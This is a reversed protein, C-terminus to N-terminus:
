IKFGIGFQINSNKAEFESFRDDIVNSFGYSYRADIFVEDTIMYEVGLLGSFTITNYNDQFRWTKLNAQGGVGVSLKYTLDLQLLVPLQLYDAKLEKAKAGEASYQLETILSTSETVYWDVFGGFFFGNRHTNDFTPAPDFDLNSVNIGSRIGYTTQSFGVTTFLIITILAIIKKM